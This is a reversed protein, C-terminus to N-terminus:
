PQVIVRARQDPRYKDYYDQDNPGWVEDWLKDNINGESRDRQKAREWADLGSVGIWASYDYYPMLSPIIIGCGEIILFKQPTITRTRGPQGSSWEGSNYVSYTLPTGTEAVDLVEKRLRRRDFTAWDKSREDKAGIIFDDIPVIDTEGLNYALEASLTSKGSGGFGSIAIVALQNGGDALMQLRREFEPITVTSKQSEASLASQRMSREEAV